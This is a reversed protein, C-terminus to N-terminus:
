APRRVTVVTIDDNQGWARAAEAIEAASRTSMERTREFGFLEGQPNAAEVVGDSVLTLDEAPIRAEPWVAEPVIGLPLGGDLALEEGGAYPMPHGANAIVASGDPAIRAMVCTVFGGDLSGAIARNIQALLAGPSLDRHLRLIGVIMSVVMAARLGKGSVDGIAVLKAGDDLPLVQYFDGGVEHAPRYVADVGQVDGSFLLRQVTRAAELEGSLRQQERRDAGVRRILMLFIIALLPLHVLLRYPILYGSIVLHRVPNGTLYQAIGNEVYFVEPLSLVAFFLHDELRSRTRPLRRWYWGLVILAVFGFSASMREIQPSPIWRWFYGAVALLWLAWFAGYLWRSRARIAALTFCTRLPFAVTIFTSLLAPVGAHNWQKFDSVLAFTEWFLDGGTVILFLAFWLLEMRQPYGFWLLICLVGTAAFAGGFVIYPAYARFQALLQRQGENRVSEASTTIAYPGIDPLMWNPPNRLSRTRLAIVLKGSSTLDPPLDYTRPRQIEADELRDLTAVTPIQRGNVYLEYVGNPVGIALTLPERAAERPLEVSRRIWLVPRIGSEPRRRGSPVHVTPWASDDFDPRAYEPRDDVSIRWDGSLDLWLLYQAHGWVIAFTSALVLIMGLRKM